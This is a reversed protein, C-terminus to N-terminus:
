ITKRRWARFSHTVLIGFWLRQGKERWVRVLPMKRWEKEGSSNEKFGRGGTGCLSSHIGSPYETSEQFEVGELTTKGRARAGERKIIIGGGNKANERSEDEVAWAYCTVCAYM